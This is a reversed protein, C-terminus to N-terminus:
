TVPRVTQLWVMFPDIPSGWNSRDSQLVSVWQMEPILGLKVRIRRPGGSMANM